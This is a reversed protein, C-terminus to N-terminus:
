VEENNEEVDPLPCWEPLVAPDVITRWGPPHLCSWKSGSSRFEFVRYDCRLCCDISPGQKIMRKMEGGGADRVMHRRLDRRM